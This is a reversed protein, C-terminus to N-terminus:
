ATRWDIGALDVAMRLLAVGAPVAKETWAGAADAAKPQIAGHEDLVKDLPYPRARLVTRLLGRARTHSNAMRDPRYGTVGAQIEDAVHMLDTAVTRIAAIKLDVGGALLTEVALDVIGAGATVAFAGLNPTGDSNLEEWPKSEAVHRAPRERQAPAETAPSPETDAAQDAPQDAVAAPAPEAPAPDAHGAEGGSRAPTVVVLDRVKDRKPVDAIPVSKDVSAKRHVEIRYELELGEAHGRRVNALQTEDFTDLWGTVPDRLDTHTAKFVVQANRKGPIEALSTVLGTGTEVVIEEGDRVITDRAM